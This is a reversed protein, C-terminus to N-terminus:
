QSKADYYDKLEQAREMMESLTHGHGNIEPYRCSITAAVACIVLAILVAIIEDRYEKIWKKM